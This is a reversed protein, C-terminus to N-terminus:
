VEEGFWGRLGHGFGYRAESPALADSTELGKVPAPISLSGTDTLCRPETIYGLLPEGPPLARVVRHPLRAGPSAKRQQGAPALGFGSRSAWGLSAAPRTARPTGPRACRRRTAPARLAARRTRKTRPPLSSVHGTLVPPLSLPCPAPARGGARQGAGRAGRLRVSCFQGRVRAALPRADAGARVQAALAQRGAPGLARVQLAARAGDRRGRVFVQARLTGEWSPTAPVDRPPRSAPQGRPTRPRALPSAGGDDVLVSRDYGELEPPPPPGNVIIHYQCGPRHMTLTKAGCRPSGRARLPASRLHTAPRRARAAARRPCRIPRPPAHQTLSAARRGGRCSRGGDISGSPGRGV